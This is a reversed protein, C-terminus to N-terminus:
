KAYPGSRSKPQKRKGTASAGDEKASKDESVEECSSDMPIAGPAEQLIAEKPGSSVEGKEMGGDVAM